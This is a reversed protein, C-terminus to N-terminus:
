FMTSSYNYTFSIYRSPSRSYRSNNSNPAQRLFFSSSQTSNFPFERVNLLCTKNVFQKRVQAENPLHSLPSADRFRTDTCNVVYQHHGDYCTRLCHCRNKFFSGCKLRSSELTELSHFNSDNCDGSSEVISASILVFTLRLIVTKM